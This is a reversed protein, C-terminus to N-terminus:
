LRCRLAEITGPVNKKGGESTLFITGGAGFGVGEGQVEGLPTLDFGRENSVNGAALEQAPFFHVSALTRIAVWRGDPSAAAGTFRLRRKLKADALDLVKQLQVTQGARLQGPYRYLAASGTEGKTAVFVGGDPLVFMAEADHAGDPYTAPFAEAPASATDAPSPEPVRYITIGARKANNDGIDGVYLCSGGACRQVALDEWDTTAAGTIHVRGRLTGAGDVAFVYPGHSDNQVWVIGPTRLSPGAGSAEPLEQPLQRPREAFSCDATNTTEDGLLAAITNRTDQGRDASDARAAMEAPTPIKSQRARDLLEDGIGILAILALLVLGVRVLPFEEM